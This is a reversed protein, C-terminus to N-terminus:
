KLRREWQNALREKQIRSKIDPDELPSQLGQSTFHWNSCYDCQYVNRPGQLPGYDNIIHHQILAELALTSDSYSRKGTTCQNSM